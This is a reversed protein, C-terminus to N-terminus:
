RPVATGGQSAPSFMEAVRRWQGDREVHHVILYRGRDVVPSGDEPTLHLAYAGVEFAVDGRRDLQHVDLRVDVIGTQVGTRWFAEIARRGHLVASAPAVLTADDAYLAAAAAADGSALAAAFVGRNIAIADDATTAAGPEDPRPQIEM